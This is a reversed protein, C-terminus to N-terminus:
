IRFVCHLIHFPISNLLYPPEDHTKITSSTATAVTILDAISIYKVSAPRLSQVAPPLKHDQVADLHKQEQKCCNLDNSNKDMGCHSCKSNYQEHAVTLKVLKGMCYHIQITAGSSAGIYLIALIAAIFRKMEAAFNIIV